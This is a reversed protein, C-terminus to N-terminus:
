PSQEANSDRNRDTIVKQPSASEYGSANGSALTARESPSSGGAKQDTTTPVWPCRHVGTGDVSTVPVATRGQGSTDVRATATVTATVVDRRSGM